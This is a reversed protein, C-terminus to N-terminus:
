TTTKTVDVQSQAVNLLEQNLLINLYARAIFLSTQNRAYQLDEISALYNFKLQSITNFLRFGSFLDMSAQANVGGANNSTNVYSYDEINLSRGISLTHYMGANVRPLVALKSYNLNKQALNTQLEQRQIDINNDLAYQICEELTWVKQQAKSKIPIFVSTILILCVLLIKTIQSAKFKM